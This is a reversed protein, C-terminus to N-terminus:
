PVFPRPVTLNPHLSLRQGMNVIQLHPGASSHFLLSAMLVNSLPVRMSSLSACSRVHEQDPDLSAEGSM